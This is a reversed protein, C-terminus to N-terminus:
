IITCSINIINALKEYFNELDMQKNTKYIALVLILDHTMIAHKFQM